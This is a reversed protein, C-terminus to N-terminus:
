GKYRNGERRRPADAAGGDTDDGYVCYLVADEVEDMTAAMSRRLANVAERVTEAKRMEPSDFFRPEDAHALAFVRMWFRTLDAAGTKEAIWGRPALADAVEAIWLDSQVTPEHLLVGGCWRVRPAPFFQSGDASKARCLRRAAEDLRIADVPSPTVGMGAFKDLQQRTLEEM